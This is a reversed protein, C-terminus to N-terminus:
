KEGALDNVISEIDRLNLMALGKEYMRERLANLAPVRLTNILQQAMELHQAIMGLIIRDNPTLLTLSGTGGPIRVSAQGSVMSLQGSVVSSQGVTKM